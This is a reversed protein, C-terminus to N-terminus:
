IIRVADYMQINLITRQQTALYNDIDEDTYSGSFILEIVHTMEYITNQIWGENPNSKGNWRSSIWPENTYIAYPALEGGIVVYWLGNEYVKRIANLALNFTDKPANIILQNKLIEAVFESRELIINM